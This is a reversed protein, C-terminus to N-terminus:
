NFFRKRDKHRRIKKLIQDKLGDIALKLTAGKEKAGYNKQPTEVRAEAYYIKKGKEHSGSNKGIRFDCLREEKSVGLTKEFSDVKLKIYERLSDDLEINKTLIELKM